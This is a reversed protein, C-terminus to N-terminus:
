RAGEMISELNYECDKHITKTNYEQITVNALAHKKYVRVNSVNVFVDCLKGGGTNQWDEIELIRNKIYEKKM